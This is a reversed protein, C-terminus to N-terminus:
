VESELEMAAQLMDNNTKVKQVHIDTMIKIVDLIRKDALRYYVKKGDRRFHLIGRDVMVTTHQFLHSLNLGLLEALVSANIEKEKLTCAVQLRIPNGLAKWLFAVESYM